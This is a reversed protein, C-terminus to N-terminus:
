VSCQPYVQFMEEYQTLPKTDSCNGDNEYYQILNTVINLDVTYVHAKVILIFMVYLGIALTRM